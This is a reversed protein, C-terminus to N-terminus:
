NKLGTKIYESVRTFVSQLTNKCLLRLQNPKWHKLSNHHSFPRLKTVLQVVVSPEGAGLECWHCGSRRRAEKVKRRQSGPWSLAEQAKEHRSGGMGGGGEPCLRHGVM